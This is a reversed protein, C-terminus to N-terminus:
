RLVGASKLRNAYWLQFILACLIVLSMGLVAPTHMSAPAAALTYEYGQSVLLGALSVAFAAVAHRSRLLLLISGALSGWVGLAWFVTQWAPFAQMYAQAEADMGVSALYGAPDLKSMTYDICGFSNWLLGIVGVAWLHAPPRVTGTELDDMTGRGRIASTLIGHALADDFRRSLASEHLM